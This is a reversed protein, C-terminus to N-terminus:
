ETALLCSHDAWEDVAAMLFTLLNQADIAQEVDHTNTPVIKFAARDVLFLNGVLALVFSILAHQALTSSSIEANQWYRRASHPNASFM